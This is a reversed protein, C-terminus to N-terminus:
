VDVDADFRKLPCDHENPECDECQNIVCIECPDKVGTAVAVGCKSCWGPEVGQSKLYASVQKRHSISDPGFVKIFLDDRFTMVKDMTPLWRVWTGANAGMVPWTMRACQKKSLYILSHRGRILHAKIEQDSIIKRLVQGITQARQPWDENQALVLISWSILLDPISARQTFRESWDLNCLERNEETSVELKSINIGNWDIAIGHTRVGKDFLILDPRGHEQYEPLQHAFPAGCRIATLAEDVVMVLTYKKCAKLLQKWLRPTIAKGDGARVIEVILVVCGAEKARKVQLDISIKKRSDVVLPETGNALDKNEKIVSHYALPGFGSGYIGHTVALRPSKQDKETLFFVGPNGAHRTLHLLLSTLLSVNAADSVHGHLSIPDANFFQQFANRYGKSISSTHYQLLAPTSNMM